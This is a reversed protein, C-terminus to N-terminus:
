LDSFHNLPNISNWVNETQQRTKELFNMPLANSELKKQYDYAIQELPNNAYGHLALGIGYALLFKEVGVHRWQVVHLMEHFCNIETLHEGKIFIIEKYTIGVANINELETFEPLGMRKFPPLPVRDKISVVKAFKRLNEPYVVDIKKFGFEIVPIANGRNAELLHDMWEVLTPLRSFIKNFIEAYSIM